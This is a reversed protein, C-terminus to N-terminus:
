FAIWGKWGPHETAWREHRQHLELLIPSESGVTVWILEPEDQLHIIYFKHDQEEVAIREKPCEEVLRAIELANAPRPRPSHASLMAVVTADPLAKVVSRLDAKEIVFGGSRGNPMNVSGTDFDEIL